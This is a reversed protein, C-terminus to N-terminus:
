DYAFDNDGEDGYYNGDLYDDGFAAIDLGDDDYEGAAQEAEAYLDEVTMEVLEVDMVDQALDAELRHLIDNRERDYTQKDYTFVGKQIGVNWRGLKLQKLTDETKREDKEMNELYDTIIKKEDQKSKRIKRAIDSYSKDLMSKNEFDIDIFDVILSCVRKRFAERDGGRVDVDELIGAGADGLDIDMTRSAEGGENIRERREKRTVVMDYHMMDDDMAMKMYEYLVSLYCYSHLMYLTKKDFLEFYTAGDKHIPTEIPIHQLFLHLNVCQEGIESFIQRISVDGKYKNFSALHKKLFIKIDRQHFKSLKWHKHITMNINTHLIMSPYVKAMAEVSNRIFHCITYIGDGEKEDSQWKTIAALFSQIQNTIDLDVSRCGQIFDVIEKLMDGNVKGVYKRLNTLAPDAKKMERAKYGDIVKGLLNRLPHPIVESDYKEMTELFDVLAAISSTEASQTITITNRQNVRDMLQLLAGADFKKGYKKLFETKEEISWFSQYGAPKEGCLAAFEEPVALGPRDYRCYHIFAAYINQEIQGKPMDPRISWTSAPHYFFPATSLDRVDNLTKGLDNAVHIYQEIAPNEAMFYALPHTSKNVENCCANQLFPKGAATQLLANKKAVIDYIQEIIGYGHANIKSKLMDIHERQSKSGKKLTERLEAKFDSSVTRLGSIVGISVMPPLLQRWKELGHEEPVIEDPQLVLYARKNAYLEQVDNRKTIHKDLADKMRGAIASANLKQISAWPAEDNKSGNLVCAIYKIGSVDEIGTMPYGAFSKVCGPYIKRTKITPIACQAAVLVCAGVIAIISQQKYIPWPVPVREAKDTKKAAEDMRKKYSDESLIVARNRILELACRLVFEEVFETPIGGNHCLASFVNYAMQDDVDEFERGRKALTEAIVQGVDKELVGHSVMKFGADDYEDQAMFDLKQLEWGSYKDIIADGDDSQRGHSHCLEALTRQYDGYVFAQALLKISVPLLKVNTEKCYLWQADEKLEVVMAERCYETEFTCLDSQKKIFDDQGVILSLLKAYPSVILDELQTQKGLEYSLLNQKYAQIHKLAANRSIQKRGHELSNELQQEMEEVTVALRKDLEGFVRDHSLKDMKTHSRAMTDCQQNVQNKYCSTDINCFLSQNDLFAEESISEDRVWHDNMRKYYHTKGRIKGENEIEFLEKKTLKSQDVDKPLQPLLELLAYEGSKVTKKGAIMTSALEKAFVSNCDHKAILNEALYDSFDAPVMKKQKDVYKKLIHYPTDDYETDYYINEVNNDKQLETISMYKKTLFRRACDMPKIKDIKNMDEVYPHDLADLIKHPTTLSLLMRSVLVDFISGGDMEAIKLLIESNSYTALTNVDIKYADCFVGLLDYKESFTRMVVNTFKSVPKRLNRLKSMEQEKQAISTKYSKVQHKIFFRISNYQQYTIDEAYVYFPELVQLADVISLPKNLMYKQMTQILYHTQPLIANLFEPYDPTDVDDAVSYNVIKSLFRMNEDNANEPDAYVIAQNLDEMPHQHVVTNKKLLRFMQLQHTALETRDLISTGPLEVRSLHMVTEPLMMISKVTVKDDPMMNKRLFIKQGHKLAISEPRSIGLNYREIVFRTSIDSHSTGILATSIPKRSSACFNALNDVICDINAQIERHHVLINQAPNTPKEYPTMSDVMAQHMKLYKLGEGVNKNEVFNRQATYQELLSENLSTTIVDDAIDANAQADDEIYMKRRNQVVPIAWQIRTNLNGLKELLPKYGAGRILADIVNGNADFTSFKTRLEKFREILLSLTDMVRKTRKSNPITSLLEDMLDTVQVDVGYRKQSEPVEVEVTIEDLEDGFIDAADLYIKHLVDHINEDAKANEPISIISEGSDTFVMSAEAAEATEALASARAGQGIEELDMASVSSKASAPRERIVISDIPIHPPIGKYEFDIYLVSISPYTTIEIMDEELNTIEGTIVNPFEGGFHIDVWTQPLLKNQRAYGAESSRGLLKIQTISEDSLYRGDLINLTKEVYSTLHIMRINQEDIYEIMFTQEHYEENAPSVIQIIDGLELKVSYDDENEM